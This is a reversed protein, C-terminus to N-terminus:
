VRCKDAAYFANDVRIRRMPLLYKNKKKRFASKFRSASLTEAKFNYNRKSFTQMSEHSLNSSPKSLNCFLELLNALYFYRVRIIYIKSKDFDETKLSTMKRSYSKDNYVITFDSHYASRYNAFSNLFSILKGSVCVIDTFFTIEFM